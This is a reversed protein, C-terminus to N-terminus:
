FVESQLLSVKLFIFYYSILKAIPVYHRLQFFIQPHTSDSVLSIEPRSVDNIIRTEYTQNKSQNQMNRSKEM